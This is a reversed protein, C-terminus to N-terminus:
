AIFDFKQAHLSQTIEQLSDFKGVDIWFDDNHEFAQIQQTQALRVYMDIISFAGTESMLDFIQPSLIQIGSFAKQHLDAYHKPRAFIQKKTECNEWGCLQNETDFLLYRSTNRNRVALTALADSNCHYEYMTALDISSIIDVNLVIIPKERNFFEQAKLLGGGTNMLQEGEDSIHFRVDFNHRQVFDIIQEGFHHVNISIDTIGYFKLKRIAYELLTIGEIEVLAKPMTDTMPKLRSGLGAAFIMAQTGKLTKM